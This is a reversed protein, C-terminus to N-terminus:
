DADCLLCADSSVHCNASMISKQVSVDRDDRGAILDGVLSAQVKKPANKCLVLHLLNVDRGVKQM